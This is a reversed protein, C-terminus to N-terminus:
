SPVTTAADTAATAADSTSRYTSVQGRTYAIQTETHMVDLLNIMAVVCGAFPPANLM